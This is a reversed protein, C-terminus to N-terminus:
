AFDNAYPFRAAFVSPSPCRSAEGPVRMKPDTMAASRLRTSSLTISFLPTLLLHGAAADLQLFLGPRDHEISVFDLGRFHQLVLALIGPSAEARAFIVRTRRVFRIDRVDYALDVSVM